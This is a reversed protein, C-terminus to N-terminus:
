PRKKLLLLAMVAFGIIIVVIIGAVAPVFYNDAISQPQQVRSRRPIRLREHGGREREELGPTGDHSATVREFLLEPALQRRPM